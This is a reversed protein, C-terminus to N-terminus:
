YQEKQIQNGHLPRHNCLLVSASNLNDYM